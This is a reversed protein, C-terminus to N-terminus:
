WFVRVVYDGEPILDRAVMALMLVRPGWLQCHGRSQVWELLDAHDLEDRKDAEAKTIGDITLSSHNSLEADAVVEYRIGDFAETIAKDLDNYDVSHITKTELKM